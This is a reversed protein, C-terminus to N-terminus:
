PIPSSSSHVPVQLSMPVSHAGARIYPVDKGDQVVWHPRRASLPISIVLTGTDPGHHGPKQIFEAECGYVTKPLLLKPIIAEVWDKTTTRGILRPVGSDVGGSKNIGFVLFGDVANSFACVQKAIEDRTEASVKGNANVKFAQGDKKEIETSEKPTAIEDAYEWDWENLTRM